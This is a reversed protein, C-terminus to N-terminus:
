VEFRNIGRFVYAPNIGFTERFSHSFHPADAFGADLAAITMNDAANLSDMALFLRKWTRFRRYPVDTHQKFLHLFRSPSLDARDALYEKSFNYDPESRILDIAAQVRPDIVLNLEGDCRLLDDLCNEIVAKDPDSEYIRCLQQVLEDDQFLSLAQERYAFRRKFYLFDSSDREIFLKGHVGGEFDLEHPTGPPVIACRCSQWAGNAIKIRFPRYIGVHLAVTAYAHAALQVSPGFYLARGRWIFLRMYAPYLKLM